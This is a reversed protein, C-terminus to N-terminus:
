EGRILTANMTRAVIVPLFTNRSGAHAPLTHLAPMLGQVLLVPHARHQTIEPMMVVIDYPFTIM